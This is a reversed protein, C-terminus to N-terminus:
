GFLDPGAARLCRESQRATRRYWVRSNSSSAFMSMVIVVSMVAGSPAPSIIQEAFLKVHDRDYLCHHYAYPFSLRRCFKRRLRMLM